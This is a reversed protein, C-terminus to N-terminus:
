EKIEKIALIDSMWVDEDSYHGERWKFDDWDKGQVIERAEDEDVADVKVEASDRRRVEIIKEVKVVFTKVQGDKNLGFRPDYKRIVKAAMGSPMEIAARFEDEPIPGFSPHFTKGM